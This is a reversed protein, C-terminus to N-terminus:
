VTCKPGFEPLWLKPGTRFISPGNRPKHKEGNLVRKANTEMNSNAHLCLLKVLEHHHAPQITTGKSKRLLSILTPSSQFSGEKRALRQMCRVRLRRRSQRRKWIRIRKHLDENVVLDGLVHGTVPCVDNQLAVTAAHEYSLGTHKSKVPNTMVKGLIPCLFDRPTLFFTMIHITQNFPDQLPPLM